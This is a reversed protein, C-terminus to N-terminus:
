AVLRKFSPHGLRNHWVHVYVNNVPVNDVYFKLNLKDTDMVYLDELKDGKGIM